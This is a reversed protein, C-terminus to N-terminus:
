MKGVEEKGTVYEYILSNKYSELDALLEEKKAILKDIESCKEDLYAVIEKQEDLPPIALFMNNIFDISARPMKTGYTSSDVMKIFGYSLFVYKYFLAIGNFETFVAFEGSCCRDKDVLFVKALYPRLKGFVVDNKMCLQSQELDYENIPAIFQGSESAINELGFYDLIGLTKDYKEKRVNCVYKLKEIIWHKPYVGIWDIGSEKMEVDPNLGKTVTETIIAQKYRKYDEITEKTKVIVSDIEGVKEDLFDAIKQQEAKSPYAFVIKGQGENNLIKLVNGNSYLWHQSESISILYMGYRDVIEDKKFTVANIQQNYAVDQVAVGYKGISGICCVLTSGKQAIKAVKAGDESLYEATFKIPSIGNLNDPKVWMLGESSYYNISSKDPTNGTQIKAITKLRRVKWGEPIEGIWEVGSDKMQRAM